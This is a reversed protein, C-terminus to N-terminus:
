EMLAALQVVTMQVSHAVLYSVLSSEKQDVTLMDKMCVKLIVKLEVWKQGMWEVTLKVM